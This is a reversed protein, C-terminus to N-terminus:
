SSSWTACDQPQLDTSVGDFSPTWHIHTHPPLEDDSSEYRLMSADPLTERPVLRLSLDQDITGLLIEAGGSGGEVDFRHSSELGEEWTGSEWFGGDTSVSVRLGHTPDFPLADPDELAVQLRRGDDTRELIHTYHVRFRGGVWSDVPFLRARYLDLGIQQILLPDDVFEPVVPHVIDDYIMEGERRGVTEAEEWRDQLALFIEARHIVAGRPLPFRMIVEGPEEGIGCLKVEMVASVIEGRVEIDYSMARTVVVPGDASPGGCQAIAPIEDADPPWGEVGTVVASREDDGLDDDDRDGLGEFMFPCGTLIVICLAGLMPQYGLKKAGKHRTTM